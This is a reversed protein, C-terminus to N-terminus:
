FGKKLFLYPLLLLEMIFPLPDEAAFVAFQKRGTIPVTSCAIALILVIPLTLTINKRLYHM